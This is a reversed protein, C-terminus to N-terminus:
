AEIEVLLEKQKGSKIDNLANVIKTLIDRELKASVQKRLNKVRILYFGSTNLLGTKERDAKQHKKLSEEGWIPIFHAPGDIEIATKLSPIFLDLHLKENAVLHKKHYEISFGAKTLGTRLFKELRSGEKAAGRVGEAAAKFFLEKEIDSKKDWNEKSKRAREQKKKKPLKAITESITESIKLKTEKPRNKGKTPHPSRGKELATKQAESKNRPTRGSKILARRIKNPYTGFEEAIEYPSKGLEDHHKQLFAEDIILPKQKAM